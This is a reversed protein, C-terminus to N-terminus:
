KQFIPSKALKSSTVEFKLSENFRLISPNIREVLQKPSITPCDSMAKCFYNTFIGHSQLIHSSDVKNGEKKVSFSIVNVSKRSFISCLSNIDFVTGGHCSDTIFLVNSNENVNRYIVDSVINSSLPGNTFEIDHVNSASSDLGSYFVTLSQTTNQLFYGLFKLFEEQLPNYLYFVKYGLRHHNIGILLGDNLPGKGLNQNDKEYTNIIIFCVKDLNNSNIKTSTKKNLCVGIKEYSKLCMDIAPKTEQLKIEFFKNDKKEPLIKNQTIDHNSQKCSSNLSM